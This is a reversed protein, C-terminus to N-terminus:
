LLNGIGLLCQLAFILMTTLGLRMHLGRGQEGRIRRSAAYAALILGLLVLGNILHPPNDMLHGTRLWTAALGAAFGAPAMCAIIPGLRRHARISAPKAAGALRARRIAFGLRAQHMFLAFLILNATGHILRINEIAQRSIEM